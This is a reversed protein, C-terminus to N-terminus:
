QGRTDGPTEEDEGQPETMGRLGKVERQCRAWTVGTREERSGQDKVEVHVGSTDQHPRWKLSLILQM